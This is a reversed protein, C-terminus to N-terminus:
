NATSALTLTYVDKVLSLHAIGTFDATIKLNGPGGDAGNTNLTFPTDVGIGTVQGTTGGWNCADWSSGAVKFETDKPITITNTVWTNEEPGTMFQYQPVASWDSAEPFGGRLYINVPVGAVWITLYDASVGKFCVVNSIFETNDESEPVYARLRMYLKQYPLPLDAETQVGSLKELVAAVDANKPTIADCHYFDDSLEEYKAFNETLSVQVRYSAVAAYGFDPQSCTLLFSGNQNDRTLMIVQDKMQPQNLFDAQQVGEHTKLVPNDDWTESCSSFGLAAVAVAFM